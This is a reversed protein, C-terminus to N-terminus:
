QSGIGKGTGNLLHYDFHSCAMDRSVFLRRLICIAEVRPEGEGALIMLM